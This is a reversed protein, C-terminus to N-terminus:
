RKRTRTRTRHVRLTRELPDGEEYSETDAADDGLVGVLALPAPGEGDDDGTNPTEETPPHISNAM